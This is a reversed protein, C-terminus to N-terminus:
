EVALGPGVVLLPPARDDVVRHGSPRLGLGVEGRGAPPDGALEVSETLLGLVFVIAGAVVSSALELGTIALRGGLMGLRQLGQAVGDLDGVTEAVPQRGKSGLIALELERGIQGGRRALRVRFECFRDILQEVAQSPHFRGDLDELTQDDRFRHFARSAQTKMTGNSMQTPTAM